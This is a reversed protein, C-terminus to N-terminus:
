NPEYDVQVTYDTAAAQAWIELYFNGRGVDFARTVRPNGGSEILGLVQGVEDRLRANCGAGGYDCGLIVNVTGGAPIQFYKWDTQDRGNYDLNDNVPENLPIQTAGGREFDRGSEENPNPTVNCAVCLGFVMLVSGFIWQSRPGFSM